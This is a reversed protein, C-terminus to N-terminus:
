VCNPPEADAKTGENREQVRVLAFARLDLRQRLQKLLRGRVDLNRSSELREEGLNRADHGTM